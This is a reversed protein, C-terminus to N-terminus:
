YVVERRKRRLRMLAITQRSRRRIYRLRLFSGLSVLWMLSSLLSLNRALEFCIDDVAYLIWPAASWFGAIMATAITFHTWYRRPPRRHLNIAAGALVIVAGLIIELEKYNPVSSPVIDFNAFVLVGIAIIIDGKTLKRENPDKGLRRMAKSRYGGWRLRWVSYRNKM